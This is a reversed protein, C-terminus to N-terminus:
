NVIKTYSNYYLYYILNILFTDEDNRLTLNNDNIQNILVDKIDLICDFILMDSSVETNLWNIISQKERQERLDM